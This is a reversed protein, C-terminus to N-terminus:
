KPNCMAFVTKSYGVDPQGIDLNWSGKMVAFDWHCMFQDKLGNTNARQEMIVVDRWAAERLSVGADPQTVLLRRNYNNYSFILFTWL